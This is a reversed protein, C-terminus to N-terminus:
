GPKHLNHKLRKDGPGQYNHIYVCIIAVTKDQKVMKASM